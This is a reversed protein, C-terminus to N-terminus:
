NLAKSLTRRKFSSGAVSEPLEIGSDNEYKDEGNSLKGAKKSEPTALSNLEFSSSSEAYSLSLRKLKTETQAAM